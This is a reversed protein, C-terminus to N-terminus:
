RLKKVKFNGFSAALSNTRVSLYAGNRIPGGLSFKYYYNARTPDYVKVWGTNYDIIIKVPLIYWDLKSLQIDKYYGAPIAYADGRHIMDMISHKISKYAQAYVGWGGYAAPDYTLWLLFSKGNGWSKRSHPKDIGVHVGVGAYADQCGDLYKIDFEYQMLGSQPLYMYAQAMGAKTSFQSLREGVMKWNGYAAKWPGLDQSFGFLPAMLLLLCIFLTVRKM